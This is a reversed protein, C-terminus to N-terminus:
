PDLPERRRLRHLRHAGQRGGHEIAPFMAVRLQNRGLKRYPETDVIGNARLTKAVAAADVADDFDITGVVLSRKAPDKVFPTTYETAEAWDYLHDLLRDHARRLRRPRRPRADVRAPRRAAGAHRDGAHQLDPGQALQRARDLALPVGPDLPRQGRDRRDAGAGGPQHPRAVARRRRRLVEAARLLLRRRGRRRGAPRRRGVHRRDPGARRRRAGGAGDRRDLDRQAGVRRRRGVPRLDARTRRGRRGQRHDLGAPVARRQDGQRVEVLVRRLDPAARQERVLGFTAADWFATTGGNGLMVEYGEPVGFLDSLGSRVRGVLAKVPKQRHSTGMLAAGDGEALRALQAPRVKSPGCGFRGDAPKLDDPITVPTTTDSASM